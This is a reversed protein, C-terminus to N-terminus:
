APAAQKNQSAGASLRRVFAILPREIFLHGLLGGCVASAVLIPFAVWWPLLEPLQLKLSVKAIATMVPMHVLYIAFSAQGVLAMWNPVRFVGSREAEVGGVLFLASALGYLLRSATEPVVHNYVSELGTAFFLMLGAVLLLRPTPIVWRDLAMSCAVGVAFLVNVFSTMYAPWPTTLGAFPIIACAITWALYAPIGVRPLGIALACFGYFLIEHWMSWSVFVVADLPERGILLASQVLNAPDRYIAEGLSPNLFYGAATLAMVFWFFPYIREFRRKLFPVVRGPSGVDVRHVMLMIFGSLVFFFEVGAHGFGFLGGFAEHAWYKPTSFYYKDAHYLVVLLAALGRGSEVNAIRGVAKM